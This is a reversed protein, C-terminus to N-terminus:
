HLEASRSDFRQDAVNCAIGVAQLVAGGLDEALDSLAASVGEEFLKEAVVVVIDALLGHAREAM